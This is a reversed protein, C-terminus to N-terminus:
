HKISLKDLVMQMLYDRNERREKDDVRSQLVQIRENMQQVMQKVAPAAASAAVQSDVARRLRPNPLAIMDGAGLVANPTVSSTPAEKLTVTDKDHHFRGQVYAVWAQIMQHDWGNLILSWIRPDKCYLYCNGPPDFVGPHGPRVSNYIWGQIYQTWLTWYTRGMTMTGEPSGPPIEHNFEINKAYNGGTRHAQWVQDYAKHIERSIRLGERQFDMTQVRDRSTDILHINYQRVNMDIHNANHLGPIFYMAGPPLARTWTTEPKPRAHAQQPMYPGREGRGHHSGRGGSSAVHSRAGYPPYNVLTILTAAQGSEGHAHRFTTVLVDWDTFAIRASKALPHAGGLGLSAVEPLSHALSRHTEALRSAHVYNLEQENFRSSRHSGVCCFVETHKLYHLQGAHIDLPDAPLDLIGDRDQVSIHTVTCADSTAFPTLSFIHHMDGRVVVVTVRHTNMIHDNKEHSAVSGALLAALSTNSSNAVHVQVYKNICPNHWEDCYNVDLSAASVTVQMGDELGQSVFVWGPKAQNIEPSGWRAGGALTDSEMTFVPKKNLAELLALRAQVTTQDNTATRQIDRVLDVLGGGAGSGRELAALVSPWEWSNSLQWAQQTQRQFLHGADNRQLLRYKVATRLHEPRPSGKFCLVNTPDAILRNLMAIRRKVVLHEAKIHSETREVRERSGIEFLAVKRSEEAANQKAAELELMEKMFPQDFVKPEGSADVMATEGYGGKFVEEFRYDGSHDVERSDAQGLRVGRSDAQGLRVGRSDAQGLRVGRSDAQGLRVERSDAQGLRVGRSNVPQRSVLVTRRM